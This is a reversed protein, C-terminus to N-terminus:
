YTTIGPEICAQKLILRLEQESLTRGLKKEFAAKWEEETKFKVAKFRKLCDIITQKLGDSQLQTLAAALFKITMKTTTTLCHECHYEKYTHVGTGDYAILFDVGLFRGKDLVKKELLVHILTNKLKKIEDENLERLVADVTDMHPQKGGRLKFYNEQFNGELRDDNMANRSGEKFVFMM